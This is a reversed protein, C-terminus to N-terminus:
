PTCISNVVDFWLVLSSFFFPTNLSHCEGVVIEDDNNNIKHITSVKDHVKNAIASM